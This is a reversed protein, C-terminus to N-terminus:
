HLYPIVIYKIIDVSIKKELIIEVLSSEYSNIRQEMSYYFYTDRCTKKNINNKLEIIWYQFLHNNILKYVATKKNKYETESIRVELMKNCISSYWINSISTSLFIFFRKILSYDALLIIQECINIDVNNDLFKSSDLELCKIMNLYLSKENEKFAQILIVTLFHIMVYRCWLINSIQYLWQKKNSTRLLYEVYRHMDIVDLINNLYRVSIIINKHNIFEDLYNFKGENVYTIIEESSYKFFNNNKM